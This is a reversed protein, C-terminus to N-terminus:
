SRSDESSSDTVPGDAARDTEREIETEADRPPPSDPAAPAPVGDSSVPRGDPPDM